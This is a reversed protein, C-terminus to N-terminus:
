ASGTSGGGSVVIDSVLARITEEMQLGFDRAVSESAGAAQVAEAFAVGMRRLVEDRLPPPYGVVEMALREASAWAGKVLAEMDLPPDAAM